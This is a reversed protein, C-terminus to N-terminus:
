RVGEGDIVTLGSAHPARPHSHRERQEHLSKLVADRAGFAKVIGNEMVLLSDLQSLVSNRHAVVVVVGGRAKVGSLASLLAKDGDVDLNSNPEDLVVLFPNGFLARALAVRQRQGASLSAGDYGVQTEYGERMTVIMDHAGAAKAAAVIEAHSADHDLRAINEAITGPFLDSAQPMYGIMRGRDKPSWQDIAAGDLSIRGRVPPWAGIITRVLSSKGSGSPGIIGVATGANARFSVNQVTMRNQEAPPGAFLGEVLLVRNPLPLATRGDDDVPYDQFLRNLRNWAYRATVLSNWNAITQEIPQLARAVIISSAVISGASMDGEIVLWAGLALTASQVMQRVAKTMGAFAGTVDATHQQMDAAKSQAGTWIRSLTPLMGMAAIAEASRHTAEGIRNRNAIAAALARTRKRTAMTSVLALGTLFAMAGITLWGVLPHMFFCVVLLVPVWPLDFLAAAASSSLFARVQDADNAPKLIDGNMNTRLPAGAILAPIRDSIRTDILAAARSMVRGRIIDFIGSFLFLGLVLLLLGVLTTVSQSPIVRDYIELMFLPATFALVNLVTTITAVGV